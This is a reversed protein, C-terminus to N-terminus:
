THSFFLYDIAEESQTSKRFNILTSNGRSAVLAKDNNQQARELVGTCRTVEAQLYVFTAHSTDLPKNAAKWDVLELEARQLSERAQRLGLTAEELVTLM